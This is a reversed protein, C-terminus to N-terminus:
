HIGDSHSTRAFHQKEAFREAWDARVFDAQDPLKSWGFLHAAPGDGAGPKQGSLGGNGVPLDFAGEALQAARVIRRPIAGRQEVEEIHPEGVFSPLAAPLDSRPNRPILLLGRVQATYRM